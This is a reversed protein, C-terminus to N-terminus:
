MSPKREKWRCWGRKVPGKSRGGRGLWKVGEGEVEASVSISASELLDAGAGVSRKRRAREIEKKVRGRITRKGRM